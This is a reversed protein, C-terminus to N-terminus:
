ASCLLKGHHLLSLFVYVRCGTHLKRTLGEVCSSPKTVVVGSGCSQFWLVAGVGNVPLFSFSLCFPNVLILQGWSTESRLTLGVGLM